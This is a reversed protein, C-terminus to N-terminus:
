NMNLIRVLMLFQRFKSQAHIKFNRLIQIKQILGLNHLAAYAEIMDLKESNVRASTRRALVEAQIVTAEFNARGKKWQRFWDLKFPNLYKKVSKAGVANSGHQRYKVLPQNLYDIRGIVSAVLALWWDHMLAERPMPLAVDLLPRNVIVTCGTVFNQVLLVSLPNNREHRISQYAMFSPSICHLNVDVVEMDSHVLLPAEPDHRELENMCSVLSSLKHPLWVDDQDAFALYRNSSTVAYQMLRNFSGAAGLRLGEDSVLTLRSDMEMMQRIIAVTGDDSGDDRILLHWDHYDQDIISKVQEEVFRAGNYTAMVIVTEARISKM